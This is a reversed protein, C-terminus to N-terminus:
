FISFFTELKAQPQGVLKQGSFHLMDGNQAHFKM